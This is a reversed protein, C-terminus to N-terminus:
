RFGMKLRWAPPSSPGSAITPGGALDENPACQLYLRSITPARMSALAFGQQHHAYILEASPPPTEALIGLWAFPFEREYCHIESAPITARCVGHFGDCGAILDCALTTETGGQRFRISPSASTVGELRVDEVEFHLPGGAAIRAAVLDRVVEHQGYIRV